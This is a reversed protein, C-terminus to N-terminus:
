NAYILDKLTRIADTYSKIKSIAQNKWYLSILQECRNKDVFYFWCVKGTKEVDCLELGEAYLYAAIYLDKIKYTDMNM